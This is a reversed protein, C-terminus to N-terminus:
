EDTGGPKADDSLDDLDDVVIAAAAENKVLSIGADRSAASEYGQGSDAVVRGNSSKLRWRFEGASDTYKEFKYM